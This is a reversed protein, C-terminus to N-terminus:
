VIFKSQFSVVYPYFCGEIYILPAVQNVFSSRAIYEKTILRLNKIIVMVSLKTEKILKGTRNRKKGVVEVECKTLDVRHENWLLVDAAFVHMEDATLSKLYPEMEDLGVQFVRFANEVYRDVCAKRYEMVAIEQKSFKALDGMNDQVKKKSPAGISGPKNIDKVSLLQVKNLARNLAFSQCFNNSDKLQHWFVYSDYGKELAGNMKRICGFHTNIAKKNVIVPKDNVSFKKFLEAVKQSDAKSEHFLGDWKQKDVDTNTWRGKIFKRDTILRGMMDVYIALCSELEDEPSSNDEPAFPISAGWRKYMGVIEKPYDNSRYCLRNDFQTQSSSVSVANSKPRPM